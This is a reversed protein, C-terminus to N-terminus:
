CFELGLRVFLFCCLLFALYKENGPVLSAAELFTAVRINMETKNIGCVKLQRVLYTGRGGQGFEVVQVTPVVKIISRIRSSKLSGGPTAGGAM